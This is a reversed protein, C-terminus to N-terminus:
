IPHACCGGGQQTALARLDPTDTAQRRACSPFGKLEKPQQTCIVVRQQWELLQQVPILHASGSATHGRKYLLPCMAASSVKITPVM